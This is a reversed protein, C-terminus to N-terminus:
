DEMSKPDFTKILLNKTHETNVLRFVCLCKPCGLVYEKKPHPVLEVEQGEALCDPCLFKNTM